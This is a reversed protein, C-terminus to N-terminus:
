VDSRYADYGEKCKYRYKRQWYKAFEDYSANYVAMDNNYKDYEHNAYDMMAIVYLYYLKDHPHTVYTEYPVNVWNDGDDQPLIRSIIDKKAVFVNYEGSVIVGVRTGKKYEKDSEWVTPRLRIVEDPKKLAIELQISADCEDIWREVIETDFDNGPRMESAIKIIDKVLM